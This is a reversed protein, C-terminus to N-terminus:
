DQLPRSKEEVSLELFRAVRRRAIILTHGPSIPFKDSVVAFLDDLALIRESEIKGFAHLELQPNM